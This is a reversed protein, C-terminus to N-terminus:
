FEISQPDVPSYDSSSIVYKHEQEFKRKLDIVKPGTNVNKPDRTEEYLFHSPKKFSILSQNWIALEIVNM